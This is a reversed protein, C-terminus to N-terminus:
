SPNGCFNNKINQLIWLQAIKVSTGTAHTAHFGKRQVSADSYFTMFMANSSAIIPYPVKAGCFKGLSRSLVDHGDFIEVHDYTCEQHPELEFDNFVQLVNRIHNFLLLITVDWGKYNFSSPFYSQNEVPWKHICHVIWQPDVVARENGLFGPDAVPFQWWYTHVRNGSDYIDDNLSCFCM